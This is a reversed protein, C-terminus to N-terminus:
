KKGPRPWNPVHKQKVRTIVLEGEAVDRTITAGAGITAGNAISVPAVLQSDSGVFVDDGIHTKHKNAGDYNCTIVGAGINVGKGIEADGLYTLHNAKSGEGLSANKVEVFNGVHADTALHAGPRLRAFPGVTCKRGVDADEILSNARIETNAGIRCNKLIVNAGVSVGDALEVDGEIIVNVDITVDRGAHLRGRLDFRAPDLLSVGNRMLEQAAWHQYHREASALQVRDNVGAVEVANAPQATVRPVDERAAMAVIDTLYYEGQANDNTLQALWRKLADARACLIGTNVETIARQEASADKQEVIGALQGDAARLIRGYGTPEAMNVTLLGLQAHQAQELLGRLTTESILPVDGYLVLVQAQDPIDPLAQAVAHGTGLQETQEVWHSLDSAFTQRVQEAGHGIVTHVADPRLRHAVDLVHALLPRNALKQLVKPVDSYMRTGKGAALIVIHLM